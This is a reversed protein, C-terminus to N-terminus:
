ESKGMDFETMIMRHDSITFEEPWVQDNYQQPLMISSKPSIACSGSNRYFIYDVSLERGRHDKHTVGAERGNVVKYSSAFGSGKVFQYVPNTEPSNFDGTLIVPISHLEKQKLFKDIGSVVKKVQSMRVYEDLINHCYSIHTTALIVQKDQDPLAIHLLLAVRNGYDDFNFSQVGLLSASRHLLIALGDMKYGQRKLKLIRYKDGLKSEFLDEVDHNFWFEQLCIADLHPQEKLMDIISQSRRMYLNPKSSEWASWWGRLRNYCPALINFTACRFINGNSEAPKEAM